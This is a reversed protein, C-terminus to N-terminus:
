SFVCLVESRESFVGFDSFVGLLSAASPLAVRLGESREPVGCPVESRESFACPFSESFVRSLSAFAARFRALSPFAARFGRQARFFCVM